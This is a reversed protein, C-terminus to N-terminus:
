NFKAVIKELDESFSVLTKATDMNNAAGEATSTAANLIQDISSSITKLSSSAESSALAIETSGKSMETVNKSVNETINVHASLSSSIENAASKQEDIASVIVNNIDSINNIIDAIEKIADVVESTSSQINKVLSSIEETSEASKKALDKVEGAVVAFGKGAEGAGAAEITANLALMNTQDAIDKIVTIAKGIESSADTLTDMKKAINETNSKAQLSIESAMKTKEGVENFSSTMEEVSASISAMASSLESSSNAINKVVSSAEESSAAVTDVNSFVQNSLDSVNEANEKLTDASGTVTKSVEFLNEASNNLDVVMRKVEEIIENRNKIDSNIQDNSSKLNTVMANLSTGLVDDESLTVLQNDLNGNAVEKAFNVKNEIGAIMNRFSDALKGIEDESSYEIKQTVDGKSMSMSVGQMMELPSFIYKKSIFFLIVILIALGVMLLLITNNAGANMANLTETIPIKVELVGRLDGMKWDDKPTLPHSNHCDVCGQASMLDASTYRVYEVDDVIDTEWFSGNKDTYLYDIARKQFDDQTGGDVRFPFPFESYLKLSFGYKATLISNLEHTMTAPLPISGKAPDFDHTPTVGGAKATGIVNTTYYGRVERITASLSKAERIANDISNQYAQDKLYYSIFVGLILFLGIIPIFLKSKLSLNKM